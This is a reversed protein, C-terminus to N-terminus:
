PLILALSPRIRDMKRTGSLRKRAAAKLKLLLKEDAGETEVINAPLLNTAIAPDAIANVIKTSLGSKAGSDSNKVVIGYFHKKSTDVESETFTYSSANYTYTKEEGYEDKYKGEYEATNKFLTGIVPKWEGLTASPWHAEYGVDGDEYSGDDMINGILEAKWIDYGTAGEVADWTITYSGTEKGIVNFHVVNALLTAAVDFTKTEVV